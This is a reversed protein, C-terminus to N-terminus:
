RRNAYACDGNVPCQECDPRSRKCTTQGHQELLLHARIRPEFDAKV